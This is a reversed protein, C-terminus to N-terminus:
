RDQRWKKMFTLWEGAETRQYSIWHEREGSVLGAARWARMQDRYTSQKYETQFVQEFAAPIKMREPGDELRRIADFGAAMDCVYRWPWEYTRGRPAATLDLPVCPGALSSTSTSPLMTTSSSPTPRIDSPFLAPLPPPHGNITATLAHDACTFSRPTFDFDFADAFPDTEDDDPFATSGSLPPETATPSHSRAPTSPGDTFTASHLVTNALLLSTGPRPYECHGVPRTQRVM